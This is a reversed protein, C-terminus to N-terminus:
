IIGGKRILHEPGITWAMTWGTANMIKGGDFLSVTKNWNKNFNAFLYHEHEDYTLCAYVEDSLIIVHPFEKDLIDSL